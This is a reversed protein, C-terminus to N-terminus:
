KNKINYLVAVPYFLIILIKNRLKEVPKLMKFLNYKALLGHSVYAGIGRLRRKYNGKIYYQFKNIWILFYYNIAEPHSLRTSSNTISNETDTHYVRLVKNIFIAKYDCGVLGWLIAAPLWRNFNTDVPHYKRLIETKFCQFKEKENNNVFFITWYDSIQFNEPYKKSVLKGNQDVALAYVASIEDSDYKKLIDDFVELAEPLMEDDHGLFIIFKGLAEKIAFNINATLGQNRELNIYRIPFIDNKIYNKLVEDTNDQSADNVVLWEFDRFTQNELSKIVRHIFNESNYCPTFVTFRYKM